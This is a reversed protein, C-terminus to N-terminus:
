ESTVDQSGGNTLIKALADSFGPISRALEKVGDPGNRITMRAKNNRYDYYFKVDICKYEGWLWDLATGAPMDWSIELDPYVEYYKSFVKSAFGEGITLVTRQPHKLRMTGIGETYKRSARICDEVARCMEINSTYESGM